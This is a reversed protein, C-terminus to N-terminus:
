DPLTEGRRLIRGAVRARWLLGVSLGLCLLVSPVAGEAGFAGGSLWAPGDIEARFWAKAEFGSMPVDFVGAQAFNWGFHLGTCLWLRRTLMYAAAFMVGLELGLALSTYLSANPNFQHLLGFILSSAALAAWSGWAQELQRFLLGRLLLEEALAVVLMAPLVSSLAVWGQAADLGQLRYHGTVALLGVYVAILLTALGAGAAFERGAGRLGLELAPRREVWHVYGAYVCLMWSGRLLNGVVRWDPDAPLVLQILKAGLAFPAGILVLAILLRLLPHRPLSM